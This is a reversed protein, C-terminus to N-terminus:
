LIYRGLASNEFNDAAVSLIGLHMYREDQSLSEVDWPIAHVSRPRRLTYSRIPLLLALANHSETYVCFLIRIYFVVNHVFPTNKICHLM